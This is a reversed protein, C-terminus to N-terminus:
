HSAPILREQPFTVMVTTGKGLQSRIVLDGGHLRVFSRALPLGLGTGEYKRNLSRDIQEFPALAKEIDAEAIGIGTDTINIRLDQEADVALTVTGGDPTFKIANSLLNLIIQKVMRPNARFNPLDDALKTDLRVNGRNAHEQMLRVCSAIIEEICVVDNGPTAKGAEVKAIDLIDNIISLLHVASERISCVYEDYHADGLPGHLKREMIEAFGIIPNLPTRLEHSMTALFESKARSASEAKEKAEVLMQQTNYLETIDRYTAVFGGDPMRNRRKEIVRGDRSFYPTKRNVLQKARDMRSASSEAKSDAAYHGHKENYALVDAYSTGVEGLHSPHDFMELARQNCVVLKLDKDFVKIGDAMNELTTNLVDAARKAAEEAQKRDTIDSYTTIVGGDPWPSRHIEVVRGSPLIRDLRQPSAM